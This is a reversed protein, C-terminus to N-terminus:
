RLGVRGQGLDKPCRLLKMRMVAPGVRPKSTIAGFAPERASARYVAANPCTVPALPASPSACSTRGLGALGMARDLTRSRTPRRYVDAGLLVARGALAGARRRGFLSGLAACCRGHELGWGRGRDRARVTRCAPIRLEDHSGGEPTVSRRRGRHQASGLAQRAGEAGARDADDVARVMQGIGLTCAGM